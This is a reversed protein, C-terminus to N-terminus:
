KKGKKKIVICDSGLIAIGDATEGEITLEIVDGDNVEGLAAAIDQRDFKLTLDIYGDPGVSTCECAEDADVVPASVDEYDSRIPAVGHLLISAVNISGVDFEESGLIAVPLIGNAGM